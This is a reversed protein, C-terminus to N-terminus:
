DKGQFLNKKSKRGHIISAPDEELNQILETLADITDNLKQMTNGASGSLEKVDQSLERFQSFTGPIDSKIIEKDLDKVSTRIQVVAEQAVRILEQMKQPPLAKNFNTMATQMADVAGNINSLLSQTREPDLIKNANELLLTTKRSLGEFDICAIKALIETMNLKLTSMMSPISPIYFYGDQLRVSSRSSAKKEKVANKNEEPNVKLNEPQFFDIELYKAGTIGDPEIRCRLGNQVEEAMISYFDVRTLPYGSFFNESKKGFKNLDVKMSIRIDKEKSDLLITIDEVKGIPVGRLKVTSGTNLGQVSEQVTTVLYGTDNVFDFAGMCTIVVIFLVIGLATFLGLKFHNNEM